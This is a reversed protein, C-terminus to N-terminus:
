KKAEKTADIYSLKRFFMDVVENGYTEVYEYPLMIMAVFLTNDKEFAYGGSLMKIPNNGIRADSVQHLCGFRLSKKFLFYCKEYDIKKNKIGPLLQYGETLSGIYGNIFEDSHEWLDDEDLKETSKFACLSVSLFDDQMAACFIMNEPLRYDEAVRWEAGSLDWQLNYTENTYVCRNDRWTGKNIQAYVISSQFLVIFFFIFILQIKRM